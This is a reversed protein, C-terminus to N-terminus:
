QEASAYYNPCTRSSCFVEKLTDFDSYKSGSYGHCQITSSEVLWNVEEPLFGPHVEARITFWFTAAKEESFIASAYVDRKRRNRSGNHRFSSLLQVIHTRLTHSFSAVASCVRQSADLHATGEGREFGSKAYM